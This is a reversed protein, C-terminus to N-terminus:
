EVHTIDVLPKECLELEVVKAGVVVLHKVRDREFREQPVM